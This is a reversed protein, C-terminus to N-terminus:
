GRHLRALADKPNIPWASHERPKPCAWQLVADYNTTLLLSSGLRWIQRALELTEPEAADYPVDIQNRLFATWRAGLHEKAHRAAELYQPTHHKLFGRVVMAPGALHDSDLADAARELLESWSPLLPRRTTKCQVARSVGAGIFPIITREALARRLTAPIPDHAESADAHM